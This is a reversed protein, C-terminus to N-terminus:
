LYFSLHGGLFGNSFSTAQDSEGLNFHLRVSLGVGLFSVPSYELGGYAMITLGSDYFDVGSRLPKEYHVEVDNWGIGLGAVLDLAGLPIFVRSGITIGESSASPVQDIEKFEYKVWTYELSLFVRNYVEYMLDVAIGLDSEFAMCDSEKDDAFCFSGGLSASVGITREAFYDEAHVPESLVVLCVIWGTISM